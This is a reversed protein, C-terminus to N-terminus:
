AGCCVNYVYTAHWQLIYIYIIYIYIYSICIIYICIYINYVYIYIYMYQICIYMYVYIYIYIYLLTHTHTVQTYLHVETGVIQGSDSPAGQCRGASGTSRGASLADTRACLLCHQADCHGVQSKIGSDEHNDASDCSAKFFFYIYIYMYVYICIYMYVYICIYMYVYICIYMYVYICIYM